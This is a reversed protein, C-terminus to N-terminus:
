YYNIILIQIQINPSYDFFDKQHSFKKTNNNEKIYDQLQNNMEDSVSHEPYFFLSGSYHTTPVYLKLNGIFTNIRIM